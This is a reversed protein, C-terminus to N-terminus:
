WTTTACCGRIACSASRWITEPYDGITMATVIEQGNLFITLPREEVVRIETVAAPRTWATVARTLRPDAPDPAILYIRKPTIAVSAPSFTKSVILKETTTIAPAACNV